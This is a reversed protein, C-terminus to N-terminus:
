PSVPGPVPDVTRGMAEDLVQQMLQGSRLYTSKEVPLLTSDNEVYKQDRKIIETMPVDIAEANISKKPACSCMFAALFVAGVVLMLLRTAQYYPRKM